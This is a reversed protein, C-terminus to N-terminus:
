RDSPEGRGDSPDPLEGPTSFWGDVDRPSLFSLRVVTQRVWALWEDDRPTPTAAVIVNAVAYVGLAVEVVLDWNEDLWMWAHTLNEM